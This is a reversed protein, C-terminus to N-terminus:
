QVMDKNISMYIFIGGLKNQWFFNPSFIFSCVKANFPMRCWVVPLTGADTKLMVIGTQMPDHMNIIADVVSWPFRTKCNLAAFEYLVPWIM